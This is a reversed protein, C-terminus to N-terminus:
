VFNNRVGALRLPELFAPAGPDRRRVRLRQGVQQRQGVRDRRDGVVVLRDFVFGAAGAADRDDAGGVVVKACAAHPHRLPPKQSRRVRLAAEMERQMTMAEALRGMKRYTHAVMWKAIRKM